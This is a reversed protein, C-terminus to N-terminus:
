ELRKWQCRNYVCKCGMNYKLYDYCERYECTTVIEEGVGMCFNGSCGGIKCDDDKECYAFTSKGCFLDEKELIKSNGSLDIFEVAIEGINFFEVERKCLCRFIIGDYDKEVIRLMDDNEVVIEDSGCNVTVLATLTRSEIDYRYYNGYNGFYSCNSIRYSINIWKQGCKGNFFEWEECKTGDPFICLGIQKNDSREVRYVHGMDICFKAAPNLISNSIIREKQMDVAISIIMVFAILSFFAVLKKM